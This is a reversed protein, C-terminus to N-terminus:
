IYYRNVTPLIERQIFDGPGIWFHNMIILLWSLRAVRRETFSILVMMLGVLSFLVPLFELVEKSFWQQNLFCILGILYM